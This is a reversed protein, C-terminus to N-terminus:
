GSSLKSERWEGSLDGRQEFGTNEGYDQRREEDGPQGSLTGAQLELGADGVGSGERRSGDGRRQGCRRRRGRGRRSRGGRGHCWGGGGTSLSEGGGAGPSSVGRGAGGAEVDGANSGVQRDVAIDVAVAVATLRSAGV